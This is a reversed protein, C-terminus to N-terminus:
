SDRDKLAEVVFRDLHGVAAPIGAAMYRHPRTGRKAIAQQIARAIEVPAGVDLSGGGPGRHQRARLAQAISRAAAATTTGALRKIRSEPKLGQMGRLKVWAILPALPPTHPRSGVEVAAAHPADAVVVSEGLSVDDVHLSDALEAFARPVNRYVDNRTSRAAKRVSNRVRRERSAENKAIAKMAADLSAFRFDSM